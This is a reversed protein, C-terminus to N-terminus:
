SMWESHRLQRVWETSDKLDEREQWMGVFPENKMRLPQVEKAESTKKLQIDLLHKEEQSLSNIINVLSNILQTNM